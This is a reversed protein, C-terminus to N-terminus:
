AAGGGRDIERFLRALEHADIEDLSVRYGDREIVVGEVSSGDSRHRARWDLVLQAVSTASGVIGTVLATITEPDLSKHPEASRIPPRSITLGPVAALDDLAATADAGVVLIQTGM